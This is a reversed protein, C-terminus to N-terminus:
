LKWEPVGIISDVASQTCPILEIADLLIIKNIPMTFKCNDPKTTGEAALQSLTIAGDWYWLRRVNEMTVEQGRYSKINGAFVGARNCRVIYYGEM